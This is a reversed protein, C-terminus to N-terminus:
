KVKYNSLADNLWAGGIERWNVHSNQIHEGSRRALRAADKAIRIFGNIARERDMKGAADYKLVQRVLPMFHSEYFSRDNMAFLNVAWTDYNTWGEVQRDHSYVTRPM